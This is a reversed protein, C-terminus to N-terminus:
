DDQAVKEKKSKRRRNSKNKWCRRKRHSKKKKPGKRIKRFRRKRSKRIRQAEAQEERCFKCIWQRNPIQSLGCCTYHCVKYDCSDCVLLKDEEDGVGCEYCADAYEM